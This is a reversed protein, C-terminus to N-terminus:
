APAGVDAVFFDGLSDPQLVGPTIKKITRGYRVEALVAPAPLWTTKDLVTKPLNNRLRNLYNQRVFALYESNDTTKAQGRSMYGKIFRLPKSFTLSLSVLLTPLSNHHVAQNRVTQHGQCGLSEEGEGEEGASRAM